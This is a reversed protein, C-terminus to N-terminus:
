SVTAGFVSEFAARLAMDFEPMTVTLGLDALSTIGHGRVGCPVIGDFHALDPEVDISVGHFSVWRRV